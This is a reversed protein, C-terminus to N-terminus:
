GQDVQHVLIRKTSTTWEQRVPWLSLAREDVFRHSVQWRSREINPQIPRCLWIKLGVYGEERFYMELDAELEVDTVHAKLGFLRWGESIPEARRGSARVFGEGPNKEMWRENM